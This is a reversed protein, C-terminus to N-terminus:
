GIPQVARRAIGALADSAELFAAATIERCRSMRLPNRGLRRRLAPSPRVQVVRKGAAELMAIEDDLILQAPVPGAEDSPRVCTPAIVIVLESDDELALDANTMSHCGGDVLRRGGHHVPAFFGPVACSAAVALSLPAEGETFVHRGGNAEAAVIRWPMASIADARADLFEFRRRIEFIGPVLALFAKGLRRARLHSAARLGGRLDVLRGIAAADLRPRQGDAAQILDDMDRFEDRPPSGTTYACLDEVVGGAALIATAISGASTGTISAADHALLGHLELALLTGAHYALGPRGGAGLVLSFRSREAPAHVGPFPEDADTDAPAIM